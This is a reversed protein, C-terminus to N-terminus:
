IPKWITIRTNLKGIKLLDTFGDPIEKGTRKWEKRAQSKSSFCKAHVLVDYMDSRSSLYVIPEDLLKSLLDPYYKSKKRSYWKKSKVLFNFETM